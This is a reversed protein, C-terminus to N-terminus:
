EWFENWEIKNIITEIGGSEKIIEKDIRNLLAQKIHPRLDKESEKNRPKSNLIEISISSIRKKFLGSFNLFLSYQNNELEERSPEHKPFPIEKINGYKNIEWNGIPNTPLM